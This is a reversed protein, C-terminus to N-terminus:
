LEYGILGLSYVDSAPSLAPEGRLQEPSAYAPSLPPGGRTLATLTEEGAALQAIGFDLVKVRFDQADDDAHADAPRALFLNGPKVDRHVLGARHGAAVGEVAERLVRLAEAP